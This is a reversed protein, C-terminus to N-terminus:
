QPEWARFVGLKLPVTVLGKHMEIFYRNIASGWPEALVLLRFGFLM